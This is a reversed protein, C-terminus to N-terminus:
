ANKYKKKELLLRCVLHGRSQLESTHEESRRRGSRSSREVLIWPATVLASSTGSASPPTRHRDHMGDGIPRDIRDLLHDDVSGEGGAVPQGRLLLQGFPDPDAAVRQQLRVLGQIDNQQM